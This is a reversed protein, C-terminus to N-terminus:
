IIHLSVFALNDYKKFGLTPICLCILIYRPPRHSVINSLLDKRTIYVSWQIQLYFTYNGDKTLRLKLILISFPPIHSCIDCHLCHSIELHTTSTFINFTWFFAFNSNCLTSQFSKILSDSAQGTSSVCSSNISFKVM